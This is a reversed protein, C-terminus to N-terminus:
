SVSQRMIENDKSKKGSKEHKPTEGKMNFISQCIAFQLKKITM